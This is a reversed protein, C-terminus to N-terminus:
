QVAQQPQPNLQQAASANAVQTKAMEAAEKDERLMRAVMVLEKLHALDISELEKLTKVRDLEAQADAKHAEAVREQAIGINELVRSSREQYLGENAKATSQALQIRSDIERMQVESQQQAMQAQQEALKAANEMIKHKGQITAAELMDEKTVIGAQFLEQMQSYQMQKQTSTLLGEEVVCHYEGFSKNYFWDSPQEGELIKKVKGPTFNAQIIDIMRKGILKQSLDLQDFIPQLGTLGAGMRLMTQYGSADKMNQGINEESVNSSRYMLDKFVDVIQFMSQPAEAAPIKEVDTMQAGKKLALGKGQGSLFVDLPNVLADEKYKWGSNIQSEFIDAIILLFRNYLFQPDRLGSVVSQIRLNYEPVNPQYYALVPVINYDDIGLPNPGDYVPTGNLLIGLKVTPVQTDVLTIQPYLQLFRKLDEEDKGKWETAEGTKTDVLLKQDRYDRYYFEDYTLLNKYSFNFSEPQFYFKGDRPGMNTGLTLGLIADAQDPLLSIAERKTVHTRNIMFRCDSLDPKRWYPDMIISNYALSDARLNGSIPDKRYDLWLKVFGMGSILAGQFSQSITELINDQNCCWMLTKTIQDATINDGNEVPTAIITKRNKRQMGEIMNIISRILGFNFQRRNTPWNSGGYFGNWLTADNCYFRNNLHGENWYSQNITLSELYATEFRSKLDSGRDNFFTPGSVPYLM